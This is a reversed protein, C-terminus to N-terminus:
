QQSLYANVLEEINEDHKYFEQDLEYLKAEDSKDLALLKELRKDRDKPIEKDFAVRIAKELLGKTKVAGVKELSELTLTALSSSANFFYQKFGGNKVELELIAILYIVNEKENLTILDDEQVKKYIADFSDPYKYSLILGKTSLLVLGILVFLLYLRSKIASLKQTQPTKLSLM